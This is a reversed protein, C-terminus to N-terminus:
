LRLSDGVRRRIIEVRGNLRLVIWPAGTSRDRHRHDFVIPFNDGYQPYLNAWHDNPHEPIPIRIYQYGYSLPFYPPPLASYDTFDNPCYFLRKDSVYRPYLHRLDVPLFYLPDPYDQSYIALAQGIQRLNSVCVSQRAKERVQSGVAFGIGVMLAIATLVLLLEVLTFGNTTEAVRKQQSLKYEQGSM